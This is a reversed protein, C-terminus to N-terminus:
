AGAITQNLLQEREAESAEPPLLAEHMLRRKRDLLTHLNQDFSHGSQSFTALPIHVTVPRTQGIRLARGNCQDEVAPNWWRSLHVVHNARTLTLGVGGARPSLIMVDFGNAATQFRDVRTQRTRGAVTGNVVMPAASLGYRRQIISALRAQIALDDVFLLAREQEGAINDLASFASIFRASAAIFAADDLEGDPQPHLSVARLRQLAALVGGRDGERAQVIAATYAAAQIAPMVCEEVSEHLPPLDPLRERRLRRLMVAPRGGIPRDLTSRLRTLRDPKQDQEYERSFSKLDGLYGPNATDIICWLDSLRNEVPTGTMAIRFGINMGKAADTLRIAPTKIKQAEDFVAAAFRVRGFDRDYDRVTEYTTLVWTARRLAEVDITPRGETETRRLLRLGPGFAPLCEGLGPASLHYAHEKQWNTLLGTPAVVLMPECPIVEADMGERLWAFFALGQLTKGLGMDDALLVGPLGQAWAEQLWALGESQHEKPPTMLVGPKASTPAPRRAVLAEIALTEENPHILLVEHPAPRSGADAGVHSPEIRALATLVEHSAPIRVPGDPRSLEVNPRGAGIAQEVQARLDDAENPTLEVWIDDVLIGSRDPLRANKGAGEGRSVETGGFWDTAPVAIWPVVRPQWLGLGIVRESYATTDRFVNEILTEDDDGLAERLYLRPNAFLARRTAPAASQIRRVVSLARRLAPALVLMNGNGLTYVTRADGFSNFQRHAFAEHLPKPLLPAQPDGGARHLVPVLRTKEGDGDIDLSFADAVHVNISSLMGKAVAGGEKLAEPLLELLRAIAALRAGTENGASQAADVAEAIGFLPDPVRRWQNGIALWAGVRTAGVIAQGTPRQWRLTLEYGPQTVIGKTAIAAVAETAPPLGLLSAERASLGAVASHEILLTTDDSIASGVAELRLALDVGPRLSVPAEAPWRDFSVPGDPGTLSIETAEPTVRFAFQLTM